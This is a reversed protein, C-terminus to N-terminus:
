KIVLYKLQIIGSKLKKINELKLKFEFKEKAFVKIGEGMIFPEVNLIIEKVLNKSMFASNITGGGAVIVEAFGLSSAKLLAGEPSNALFYGEKLKLKKDTSIIIKTANINDFNYDEWKQVSDYTKRGVIFCGVDEVLKSFILWSEDSLFDEDGNERAIIGNTTQTSYLVVKM